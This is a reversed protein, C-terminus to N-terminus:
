LGSTSIRDHGRHLPSGCENRKKMKEKSFSLTRHMILDNRPQICCENIQTGHSVSFSMISFYFLSSGLSDGNSKGLVM